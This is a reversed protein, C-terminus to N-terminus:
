APDSEVQVPVADVDRRGHHIRESTLGGQSPQVGAENLCWPLAPAVCPELKGALRFALTASTEVFRGDWGDIEGILTSVAVSRLLPGSGLLSGSSGVRLHTVPRQYRSPCKDLHGSLEPEIVTLCGVRSPV